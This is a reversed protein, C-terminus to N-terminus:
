LLGQPKGNPFVEEVVKRIYEQRNKPRPHTSLFEPPHGGGSLRDLLELVDTMHRPDYGGLIMLEIAWRDAELEQQRSYSLGVLDTVMKAMQQGSVDGTIMGGASSIGGWMQGQAMRQASHRELVHGMEHGLIGYLQGPHNLQYYLGETIFVQGGPLAFANVTRDDALLHFQFQYPLQRNENKLRNNLREVLTEGVLKVKQTALEDRSFGNFQRAMERAAQLGLAREQDFSIGGVRQARGTIPNVETNSMYGIVSFLIIVAALILRVKITSTTQQRSRVQYENRSRNM